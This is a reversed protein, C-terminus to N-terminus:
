KRKKFVLFMSLWSGFLWFAAPLPVQSVQLQYTQESRVLGGLLLYYDIGKSAEFSAVGANSTSLISTRNAINATLEDGSYPSSAQFTPTLSVEFKGNLTSGLYFAFNTSATSISIKQDVQIIPSNRQTWGADYNGCTGNPLCYSLTPEILVFIPASRTDSQSFVSAFSNQSVFSVFLIFVVNICQKKFSISIKM